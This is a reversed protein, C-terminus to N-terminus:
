AGLWALARRLFQSANTDICFGHAIVIREANWGLVHDRCARAQVRGAGRFSARFDRPTSGHPALVGGLRAILRVPWSLTRGDVNEILDTLILTRSPRHHFVVENVLRSHQFILSEIDGGWQGPVGDELDADFRLHPCKQRLGPAAWTRAKPYAAQWAGIFLHHLSSPAVLEAVPGLADIEAQLAGDMAIPSHVWIRGDSLRVVTMRTTFPFGYFRVTAGDALWLREGFAQLRAM